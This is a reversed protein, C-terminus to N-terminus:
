MYLTFLSFHFILLSFIRLCSEFFKEDKVKKSFRFIDITKIEGVLPSLQCTKKNLTELFHDPCLFSYKRSFIGSMTTSELAYGLCM